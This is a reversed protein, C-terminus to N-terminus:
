NADDSQLIEFPVRLYHDKLLKVTDSNLRQKESAKEEAIADYVCHRLYNVIANEGELLTWHPHCINVVVMIVNKDQTENVFYPDNPSLNADLFLKVIVNGVTAEFNPEETAINKIISENQQAITEESPISETLTLKEVFEPSILEEEISRLAADVQFQQPGHEDSLKGKRAKRAAEIYPKIAEELGKEVLDEEDRYWNIEDKTHSVEFDELNIEGVLRQNILDNRGGSGFITEPRWSDPYGKILRKRHFISFGAKSRSGSKLVGVWGEAVKNGKDTDIDYIFDQKYISGDKASLFDSDKYNEWEINKSNYTLSIEDSTIDMRYISALYDKIKGITRGALPRNHKSIEIRTYHRNKEEPESQIDRDVDGAIVDNVNVEVTLREESGLKSTTITWEDGIWCAATKLGLGYRSRGSNNVPPRGVILARELDNRDMGMANDSIRIFDDGTSIHVELPENDIKFQTDLAVKNDAYSQTSNDVFEALAYWWKYSLRRYNGFNEHGFQIRVKDM